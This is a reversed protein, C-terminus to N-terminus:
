GQWSQWLAMQEVLTKDSMPTVYDWAYPEYERKYDRCIVLYQKTPDLNTILYHGNALSNTQCVIQLTDAIMVVITRSSPVGGVTVIGDGEGAIYGTSVFLQHTPKIVVHM